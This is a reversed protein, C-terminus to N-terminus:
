NDFYREFAELLEQELYEVARLYFWPRPFARRRRFSRRASPFLVCFPLSAFLAQVHAQVQLVALAVRQPDQLPLFLEHHFWQEPLLALSLLRLSLFAQAGAQQVLCSAQVASFFM